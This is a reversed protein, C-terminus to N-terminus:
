KNKVLVALLIGNDFKFVPLEDKPLISGWRSDSNYIIADINLSKALEFCNVNSAILYENIEADMNNKAVTLKMKSSKLYNNFLDFDVARLLPAIRNIKQESAAVTYGYVTNKEISKFQQPM